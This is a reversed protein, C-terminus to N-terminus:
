HIQLVAIFGAFAAAFAMVAVVVVLMKNKVM